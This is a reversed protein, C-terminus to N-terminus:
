LIDAPLQEYQRAFAAFSALERDVPESLGVQVGMNGPTMASENGSVLMDGLLIGTLAVTGAFLARRATVLAGELFLQDKDNMQDVDALIRDERGTRILYDSMRDLIRTARGM